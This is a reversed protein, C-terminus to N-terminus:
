EKARNMPFRFWARKEDIWEFLEGEKTLGLLRMRDPSNALGTRWATTVVQIFRLDDDVM